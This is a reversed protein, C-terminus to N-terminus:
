GTRESCETEGFRVKDDAKNTQFQQKNYLENRTPGEVIRGIGLQGSFNIYDGFALKAGHRSKTTLMKYNYKAKSGTQEAIEEPTQAKWISFNSCLWIIRDSGSVVSEDEVNLGDRNLQTFLIIPVGYKVAFNHLSTMMFGLLQYERMHDGLESGEMLKLYDFVIVCKNALGNPGIGVKKLIWRRMISLTEEFPKGAISRYDYPMIKLKEEAERVDKLYKDNKAFKGTEILKIEVGSLMALMRNWHDEKAMETDLNLVPIMEGGNANGSAINASMNDALFTKGGGSRSGIVNLTRIRLGGGIAIDYKQYGTSIGVTEIPNQILYDVYSTIGDGISEPEEGDASSIKNAYDIIKGEAIGLINSVSEEGTIQSIERKCNDLEKTLERGIQLKRLKIAHKRSNGVDVPFNQLARLYALAEKGVIVDDVAVTKATSKILAVDVKTLSTDEKFIHAFCQYTAKAIEDTFTDNNLIDAVDAFATFGGQFISSLVAREVSLDNIM